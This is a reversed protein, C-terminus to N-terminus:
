GKGDQGTPTNTHAPCTDVGIVYVEDTYIKNPDNKKCASILLWTICFLSVLSKKNSIM